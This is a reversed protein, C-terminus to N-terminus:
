SGTTLDETHSPIGEAFRLSKLGEVKSLMLYTDSFMSLAPITACGSNVHKGTASESVAFICQQAHGNWFPAEGPIGPRIPLLSEAVAQSNIHTWDM